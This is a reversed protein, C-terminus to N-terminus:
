DYGRTAWPLLSAAAIAIAAGTLFAAAPSVTVWIAGFLVSAALVGLGLAANYFGFATGHSARPSLEAMLAKEPGETLGFFVGYALFLLVVVAASEAFALSAYIVAYYIWGTVILSRYGVRDSWMGGLASSASKVVHLAAWTMPLWAIPVGAAELKILLFADTSNGLSFLVLVLLFRRTATPLSSLAPLAPSAPSPPSAAAVRSDPEKTTWVLAIVILGPVITLAFLGRYDGPRVALYATAVLPGAIAGAHDMARHFGFVAGKRGEPAYSALMADRPAGRVGKGFRDVFRLGLVHWWAAAIAIVPRALSSVTYGFAMLPKRARMRDSLRGSWVKFISNVAEAIGEILGVIFPTGGRLRMIFGPLLPYIMESALDTFFSIWGLRWVEAPLAPSAPSAPSAPARM